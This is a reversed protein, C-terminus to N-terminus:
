GECCDAKTGLRSAVAQRLICRAPAPPTRAYDRIKSLVSTRIRLVVLYLSDGPLPNGRGSFKVAKCRWRRPAFSSPLDLQLNTSPLMAARAPGALAPAQM